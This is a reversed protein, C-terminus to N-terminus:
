EYRLAEVPNRKAARWSQWSVTLLAIGLALIGSLAFIWWSLETKYAFNELWKNMAYYAIPTAIVFAIAVWKVFDRNLMTMVESIKAGNVKRIGIEKTRTDSTNLSTGILGLTSILISIISFLLVIKSLQKDGAYQQEYESKLLTYEFPSDTFIHQWMGSLEDIQQKRMQKDAKIMLFSLRDLGFHFLMPQFNDHLSTHHYDDVVGVIKMNGWNTPQDIADAPNTFGLKHLLTKNIVIENRSIEPNKSFSHGALFNTNIVEFYDADCSLGVYKNITEERNKLGFHETTLKKGPISSSASLAVIGPLQSAQDKFLEMKKNYSEFDSTIPAPLVMINNATFGLKQQGLFSNQKNIALIGSILVMSLTFQAILIVAGRNNKVALTNKQQMLKLPQIGSIKIIPHLASLASGILFLGITVPWFSYFDIEIGNMNLHFMQYLSPALWFFLILTISVPIATFVLSEKLLSVILRSKTSGIIKRIGIEKFHKSQHFNLFNIYNLWSILLTIIGVALIIQLSLRSVFKESPMQFTYNKQFHKESIKETSVTISGQSQDQKSNVYKDILKSLQKDVQAISTGKHVAIYSQCAKINWSNIWDGILQVYDDISGVMEFHINSNQPIDEIVAAVTVLLPAKKDHLLKFQKGTANVTGIYKKAASRTLVVKGPEIANKLDGNIAKCQFMSLFGPNSYLVKPNLFDTEGNDLIATEYISCYTCWNDIGPVESCATEAFPMPTTSYLSSNGNKEVEWQVHYLSDANPLFQDYNNESYFYFYIFLFTFMGLTLGAINLVTMKSNIFNRRIFFKIRNM